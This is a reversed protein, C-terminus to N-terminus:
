LAVIVDVYMIVMGGLHIPGQQATKKRKIDSNNEASKKLMIFQKPYSREIGFSLTINVNKAATRSNTDENKHEPLILHM